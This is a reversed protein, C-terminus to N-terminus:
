DGTTGRWSKMTGELNVTIRQNPGASGPYACGCIQNTTPEALLISALYGTVSQLQASFEVPPHQLLRSACRASHYCGTCASKKLPYRRVPPWKPARQRVPIRRMRAVTANIGGIRADALECAELRGSSDSSSRKCNIRFFRKYTSQLIIGNRETFATHQGRIASAARMMM